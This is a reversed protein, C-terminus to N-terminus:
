EYVSSEFNGADSDDSIFLLTVGFSNSRTCSMLLGRAISAAPSSAGFSCKKSNVTGACTVVNSAGPERELDLLRQM